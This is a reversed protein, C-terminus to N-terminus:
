GIMNSNTILDYFKGLVEVRKNEREAQMEIRARFAEPINKEFFM